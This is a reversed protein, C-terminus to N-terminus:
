LTSQVGLLLTQPLVMTSVCVMSKLSEFGSAQIAGRFQRHAELMQRSPPLVHQLALPEHQQTQKLIVIASLPTLLLLHPAQGMMASQTCGVEVKSCSMPLKSFQFKSAILVLKILVLRLQQTLVPAQHQTVTAMSVPTLQQPPRSMWSHFISTQLWHELM